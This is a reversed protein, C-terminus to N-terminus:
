ILYINVASSMSLSYGPQRYGHLSGFGRMAGPEAYVPYVQSYHCVKVVNCRRSLKRTFEVAKELIARDVRHLVVEIM